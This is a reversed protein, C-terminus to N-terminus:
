AAPQLANLYEMVAAHGNQEAADICEDVEIPCGHGHAYRLTELHRDAAAGYCTNDNWPCGHEHVYRLGELHGGMAAAYCPESDWPCGQEHAYRLVELHGGLAAEACTDLDWLCGRSHFWTLAGLQGKEAAATCAYVTLECQRNDVLSASLCLMRWLDLAFRPMCDLALMALARTRLFGSRPMAEQAPSSHDCFDKCALRACTLDADDLLKLVARLPKGTIARLLSPLASEAAAELRASARRPRTGSPGGEAMAPCRDPGASLRALLLQAHGRAAITGITDILQKKIRAAAEMPSVGMLAYMKRGGQAAIEKVLSHTDASVEGFAGIVIGRIPKVTNLKAEIPGISANLPM